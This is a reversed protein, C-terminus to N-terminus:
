RGILRPLMTALPVFEEATLRRKMKLDPTAVAKKEGTHCRVVGVPVKQADLNPVLPGHHGRGLDVFGPHVVRPYGPIVGREEVVEKLGPRERAEIHVM